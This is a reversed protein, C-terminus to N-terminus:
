RDSLSLRYKTFIRASSPATRVLYQQESLTALVRPECAVLLFDLGQTAWRLCCVFMVWEGERSYVDFIFLCQMMREIEAASISRM